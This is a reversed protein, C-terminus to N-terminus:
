QFGDPVAAMNNPASKLQLNGGFRNYDLPYFFIGRIARVGPGGNYIKELDISPVGLM